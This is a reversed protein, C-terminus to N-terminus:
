AMVQRSMAGLSPSACAVEAACSGRFRLAEAAVWKAAAEAAAQAEEEAERQQQRQQQQMMDSHATQYVQLGRLFVHQPVKTMQYRSGYYVPFVVKIVQYVVALPFSFYTPLFVTCCIVTFLLQLGGYLLLRRTTSGRRVLRNWFNDNKAARRALCIYSTEYGNGLIFSRFLVQVTLFYLLQWVIYFLLPAAVLWLLKHEPYAPPPVTGAPTVDGHLLQVAYRAIGRWGRLGSPTYHRHAFMAFGSLLHMLVSVTHDGSGFVWPCQWAVLAGAIPGDALAYVLAELQANSPFLVLFVATAINVFYCFDALYFVWKQRYFSVARWPMCVATFVLFLLPLCWAAAGAAFLLGGFALLGAAYQRTEETAAALTRCAQKVAPCSSGPGKRRAKAVDCPLKVPAPQHGVHVAKRAM